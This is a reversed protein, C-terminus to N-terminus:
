DNTIPVVILTNGDLGEIRAMSGEAMDPGRASWLTDGVKVKGRGDTIETAVRVMTGVLADGRRNLTEDESPIDGQKRIFRRGALVSIISLVGFNILQWEWTIDPMFFVVGGLVVAALGMWLFVVGPLLIELGLFVLAAIFWTWHTFSLESFFNEM